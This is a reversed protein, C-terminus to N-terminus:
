NGGSRAGWNRVETWKILEGYTVFTIVPRRGLLRTALPGSLKRKHILSTVDTDLVVPQM